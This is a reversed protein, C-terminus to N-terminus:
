AFDTAAIIHSREGLFTPFWIFVSIEAEARARRLVAVPARSGARCRRTDHPPKRRTNRGNWLIGQMGEGCTRYYLGGGGHRLSPGGGGPGAATRNRGEQYRHAEHDRAPGGGERGGQGGGGRPVAPGLARDEEARLGRIAPPGEDAAEQPPVGEELEASSGLPELIGRPDPNPRKLVGGHRFLVVRYSSRSKNARM